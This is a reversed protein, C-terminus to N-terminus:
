LLHILTFSHSEILMSALLLLQFCLFFCLFCWDSLDPPLLLRHLLDIQEGASWPCALGAKDFLYYGLHLAFDATKVSLFYTGLPYSFAEPQYGQITLLEYQGMDVNM